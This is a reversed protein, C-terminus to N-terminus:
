GDGLRATALARYDSDAKADLVGRSILELVCRLALGFSGYVVDAVLALRALQGDDLLEMRVPDRVYLVDAEV